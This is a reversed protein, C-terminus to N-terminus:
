DERRFKPKWGRALGPSILASAIELQDHLFAADAIVARLAALADGDYAVLVAQALDHEDAPSAIPHVAAPM